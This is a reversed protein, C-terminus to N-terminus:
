KNAPELQNDVKTVGETKSALDGIRKSEADDAVPGRLTAKGDKVLIKVNHGYTSITKDQVIARRIAALVKIDTDSTNNGTDKAQDPPTLTQDTRDRKNVGTNDPARASNDASRDSKDTDSDAALAIGPLLVLLSAILSQM